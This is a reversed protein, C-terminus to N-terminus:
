VQGQSSNIWTNYNKKSNEGSPASAGVQIQIIMEDAHHPSIGM